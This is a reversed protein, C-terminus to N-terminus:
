LFIIGDVVLKDISFLVYDLLISNVNNVYLYYFYVNLMFFLGIFDLFDLM